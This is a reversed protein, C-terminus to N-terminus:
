EGSTIIGVHKYDVNGTQPNNYLVFPSISDNFGVTDTPNRNAAAANSLRKLVAEEHYQKISNRIAEWDPSLKVSEYKYSPVPTFIRELYNVKVFDTPVTKNNYRSHKEM